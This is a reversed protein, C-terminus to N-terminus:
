QITSNTSEGGILSQLAFKRVEHIVESRSNVSVCEIFESTNLKDEEYTAFYINSEIIFYVSTDNIVAMNVNDFHVKAM